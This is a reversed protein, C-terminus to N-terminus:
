RDKKSKRGRIVGKTAIKKLAGGRVQFGPDAGTFPYDSATFRLVSLVTVLVFVVLPTNGQSLLNSFETISM